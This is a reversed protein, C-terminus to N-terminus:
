RHPTGESQARKKAEAVAAAKEQEIGAMSAKHEEVLAEAEEKAKVADTLMSDAQAQRQMWSRTSPSGSSFVSLLASFLSM